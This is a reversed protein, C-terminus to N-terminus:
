LRKYVSSRHQIGYIKICKRAPYVWYLIRWDGVTYSNFGKLAPPLSQLPKKRLVEPHSSLWEIKTLCRRRISPDLSELDEEAEPLIVVEYHSSM